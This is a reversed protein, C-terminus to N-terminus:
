KAWFSELLILEDFRGLSQAFQDSFDKTRSYLHPQFVGLLKDKPYMEKLADVVADIEAPHHAYDDILVLKDTNIVYNFRRKIGKFSLLAEAIVQLPIGFCDAMALAAVTNLVNYRGPLNIQINHIKDTPTSVDFSYKGEVLSINHASYDSNDEIGYTLGEVPLGNRVILTNTVLDAFEKYTKIMADANGYIDLHDADMSTICAINPSLHLFSRDFEDAEVITLPAKGIILNSEENLSIGGLFATAGSKAYSMIHALIASTSTKGHTGAVALCTTNRTIRGLMESRKLIEFGNEVFFRLEAHDESIAPTFVVLTDNPNRFQVPIQEIDPSFHIDIGMKQMQRTLQSEMRDFGGVCKKHFVLFQAIASMGIGGIGIMYINNKSTAEL